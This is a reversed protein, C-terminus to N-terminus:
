NLLAVFSLVLTVLFLFSCARDFICMFMHVAFSFSTLSLISCLPLLERSSCCYTFM